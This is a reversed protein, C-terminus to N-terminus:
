HGNNSYLQFVLSLLLYEREGLFVYALWFHMLKLAVVAMSAPGYVAFFLSIM